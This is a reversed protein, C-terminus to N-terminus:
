KAKRNTEQANRVMQTIFNRPLFRSLNVPINNLFGPIAVVKGKKMARYGYEAVKQPTAAIWNKKLLNAEGNGVVKSFGTKTLGPCLVTVTVGTEKVENAIAESFSLVYAKSANYIAMLPSPLFAAVSAVNMVRGSGSIVMDKIYLKTLRTLTFIHLNIM